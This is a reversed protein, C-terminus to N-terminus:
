SIHSFKRPTQKDQFHFFVEIKSESATIM